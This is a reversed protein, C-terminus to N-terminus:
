SFDKDLNQLGQGVYRAVTYIHTTSTVPCVQEDLYNFFGPPQRNTCVTIKGNHLSNM